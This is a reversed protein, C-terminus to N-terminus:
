SELGLICALSVAVVRYAMDKGDVDDAGVRDEYTPAGSVTQIADFIPAALTLHLPGMLARAAM